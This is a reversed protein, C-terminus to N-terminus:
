ISALDLFRWGRTLPYSVLAGGCGAGLNFIDLEIDNLHVGDLRLLHDNAGELDKHQIVFGGSRSFLSPSRPTLRAVFANWVPVLYKGPGYCALCSKLGSLCWIPISQM